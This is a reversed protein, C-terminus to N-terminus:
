QGQQPGSGSPTTQQDATPSSASECAPDAYTATVQISIGGRPNMTGVVNMWRPECAAVLDELIRNTIEEHFMGVNRFSGLYLKLSKSEICLRDPIYTIKIRAFDPQRTIPCVSTFEPCDFEITYDRGADRNPFAELRAKEPSDHYITTGSGLITLDM